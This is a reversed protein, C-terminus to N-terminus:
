DRLRGRHGGVVVLLSRGVEQGATGPATPHPGVEQVCPVPRRLGRAWWRRPCPARGPHQAWAPDLTRALDLRRLEYDRKAYARAALALLNLAEEEAADGYLTTLGDLLDPYWAEARTLFIDREVAELPDLVHFVIDNLSPPLSTAASMSRHDGIRGRRP